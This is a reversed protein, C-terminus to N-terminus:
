SLPIPSENIETSTTEEDVEPSTTEENTETSTTEENVETSTTEENVDTSTTEESETSTTEENTTNTTTEELSGKEVVTFLISCSISQGDDALYKSSVFTIISSGKRLGTVEQKYPNYSIVDEDTILYYWDINNDIPADPDFEAIKTMDMHTCDEPLINFSLKTKEGEEITIKDEETSISEVPVDPIVVKVNLVKSM